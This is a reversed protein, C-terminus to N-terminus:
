RELPLNRRLYTPEDLNQGNLITGETGFFRSGASGAALPDVKSKRGGKAHPAAAARQPEEAAAQESRGFFLCVLQLSGPPVAEDLSVGFDIQCGTTIKSSVTKSIASLEALRLDPGAIVALLASSANDLRADAGALPSSFLAAAAAVARDDGSGDAVAIRFRGGSNSVISAVHETGLSIFGPRASLRWFLALIEALSATAAGYAERMGEGEHGTFLDDLAISATATAAASVIPLHRRAVSARATGEFAFPTTAICVVTAGSDRMAKLIEPAAGSGFGGGLSVAVIALRTGAVAARIRAIDDQAAARAKIADGGTGRGDLRAAGIQVFGIGPRASSTDCDFGLVDAEPFLEKARAAFGVGAGGIGTLLVKGNEGSM